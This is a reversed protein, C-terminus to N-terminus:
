SVPRCLLENQQVPELATTSKQLVRLGHSSSVAPLQFRTLWVSEATDQITCGGEAKREM